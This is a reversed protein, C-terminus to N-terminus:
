EQKGQYATIRKKVNAKLNNFWFAYDYRHFVGKPWRGMNVLDIKDSKPTKMNTVILVGKQIDVHAGAFNPIEEELEGTSDNFFKAGLNADRDAATSDTRWNLPNIAGAGPLLVPSPGADTGETNYTIIVGTDNESQALKMWPYKKLDDKTVSYGILYAAVLRKQLDPDNFHNRMLNILAMTGQSHGALIFPRDPNLHKIYYDFAREIDEAGVQFVPDQYGDKGDNGAAMSQLAGSQQRYFPAFLNAYPSYVGGQAVILGKANDRLSPDSIDMNKPAKGLYITPYVYFVDVAKDITQAKAVWCYEESYDPQETTGNINMANKMSNCGNFIILAVLCSLLLLSSKRKM